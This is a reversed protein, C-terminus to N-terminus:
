PAQTALCDTQLDSVLAGAIEPGSLPKYSYVITTFFLGEFLGLLLVLCCNEACLRTWPIPLGRYVGVALTGSFCCAIGIAYYWALLLLRENFAERDTLATLGDAEVATTNVLVSLAWRALEKGDPSLHECDRLLAGTFGSVTNVIGANELTSVYFFFFLTEFLSVLTL